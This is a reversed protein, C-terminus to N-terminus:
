VKTTRVNEGDAADVFFSAYARLGDCWTQIMGVIEGNGEDSEEWWSNETHVAHVGCVHNDEDIGTRQVATTAFLVTVDWKM